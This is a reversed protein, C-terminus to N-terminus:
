PTIAASCSVSLTPGDSGKCIRIKGDDGLLWLMTVVGNQPNNLAVAPVPQYRANVVPAGRAGEIYTIAGVLASVLIAGAVVTGSYNMAAEM